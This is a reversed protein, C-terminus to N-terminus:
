WEQRTQIYTIDTVWKKNAADVNFERVPHNPMAVNIDKAIVYRRRRQRGSLRLRKMLSRTPYRGLNFGEKHLVISLARRGLSGRNVKWCALAHADREANLSAEPRYKAKLWRYFGNRSVTMTRYLLAM